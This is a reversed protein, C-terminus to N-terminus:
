LYVGFVTFRPCRRSVFGATNTHAPTDPTRVSTELPPARWGSPRRRRSRPAPFCCRSRASACALSCVAPGAPDRWRVRPHGKNLTVRHIDAYTLAWGGCLDTDESEMQQDPVPARRVTVREDSSGRHGAWTLRTTSRSDPNGSALCVDTQRETETQHLLAFVPHIHTQTLMVFVIESLYVAKHFLCRTYTHAGNLSFMDPTNRKVRNRDSPQHPNDPLCLQLDFSIILNKKPTPPTPPSWVSLVSTLHKPATPTAPSLHFTETQPVSISFNRPRSSSM